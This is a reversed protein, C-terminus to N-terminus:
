AVSSQMCFFNYNHIKSKTHAQLQIIKVTEHIRSHICLETAWHYPIRSWIWPNDTRAGHQDYNKWIHIPYDASKVVDTLITTFNACIVCSRSMGQLIQWALYNKGHTVRKGNLQFFLFRAFKVSKKQVTAKHKKASLWILHNQIGIFKFIPIFICLIKRDFYRSIM